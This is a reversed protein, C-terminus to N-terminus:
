TAVLFLLLTVAGNNLGHAVMAPVLTGRWERALNFALALAMLVPVGLLGQPHIAAFVFSTVLAGGLVSLPRGLRGTAERLHRYLVGRFMTEEVLPAVVSAVLVVQAWLLLSPHNVVATIPHGPAGSPGFPDPPGEVWEQAGKLALTILFGVVVLPLAALYTGVGLLPELAPRRGATWGIEQRVQRWPVGRLVPWALVALSGLAAAGGLLLRFDGAPVYSLGYSLGIFALLYLAFTEAYVGGHRTGTTLGRLRLRGVALLVLLVVLLVFGLLGNFLGALAWGALGWFTRRAPALGRERAAVDAAGPPALALDGFWGLRQRLDEQEDAPLVPTREHDPQHEYGAYLRDLRRALEQEAEAPHVKGEARAAELARLRQRAEAPGALEGDLVAFRLRQAYGGRNLATEAQRSLDHAQGGGAAPLNAVGVFYRAQMRMAVLDLTELLSAPAERNRWQLFVIVGVIVPWALVPWGKRRPPPPPPPLDAAPIIESM